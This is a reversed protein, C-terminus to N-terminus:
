KTHGKNGILHVSRKKLAVYRNFAVPDVSVIVACDM